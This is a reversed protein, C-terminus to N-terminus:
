CAGQPRNAYPDANYNDLDIVKLYGANRCINCSAGTSLDLTSGDSVVLCNAINVRKEAWGVVGGCNQTTEGVIAIKALCNEITTGGYGLAVIGGHTADGAVSSNITVDVYCGTIIAKNRAVIAAAFKQDTTITGEVKLDKIIAGYGTYHFLALDATGESFMNIKITHGKGDFTGKYENTQTGIMSVDSAPKEIDATLVANAYVEGDNVLQAFEELDAATGIQYVGGVESLAWAATSVVSLLATLCLNLLKKSM